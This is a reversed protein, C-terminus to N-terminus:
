VMSEIFSLVEDVQAPSFSIIEKDKRFWTMQRKAFRRTNKKIEEVAEDLNLKNEMFSFIEQYGVTQLANLHRLPYLDQAEKLLGAKIMMEVRSNINRYLEERPLQLGVKIINFDRKTQKGKRFDLVSQGTTEKVELARMMRRPNQMEGKKFFDPDKLEIEKRLWSIGKRQYNETIQQRIQSDIEPIEDLGECFVKIYLGTGGAMIVIDHKKFLRQIIELAAKEFAAASFHERVSHSAVLHHPVSSLEEASPRAVGITLEKFCQRSDASIIETKFHQALSIAFATKGTATPGTVIVVTKERSSNM